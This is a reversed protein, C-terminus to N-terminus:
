GPPNLLTENQPKNARKEENRCIQMKVKLTESYTTKEKCRFPEVKSKTVPTTQQHTSAPTIPNLSHTRGICTLKSKQKAQTKM